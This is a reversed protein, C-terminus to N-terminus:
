RLNRLAQSLTLAQWVFMDVRILCLERQCDCDFRFPNLGYGLVFLPRQTNPEENWWVRSARYCIQTVSISQYCM